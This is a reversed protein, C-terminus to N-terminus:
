VRNDKDKKTTARRNGAHKTADNFNFEKHDEHTNGLFMIRTVMDSILTEPGDDRIDIASFQFLAAYKQNTLIEYNPANKLKKDKPKTTRLREITHSDITKIGLRKNNYLEEVYWRKRDRLSVCEYYSGLKEDVETDEKEQMLGTWVIIKSISNTFFLGLFFIISM